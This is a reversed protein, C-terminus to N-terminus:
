PHIPEPQLTIHEIDFRVILTERLRELVAPWARLDDVVIHASLSITSSDLRWIHLDHVSRVGDVDVMTDSVVPLSLERPVREMLVDVADRLLRLSSFLILLCILLSLLPDVPTWGTFYIVAGSILAAVSGLLDGMVHLLAGRINLTQEGRHLTWAVLLNVALGILAILMVTGGAVPQPNRLRGVAAVCIGIVILIMFVANVIAALVEARGWGFSMARDAPRQALLAAVAGLGLSLSDTAMHGADGLLALSGSLWGGVAEVLAFVFTIVLGWVLPRLHGSGRRHHVHDHM